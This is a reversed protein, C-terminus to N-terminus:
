VSDWVHQFVSAAIGDDGSESSHISSGRRGFGSPGVTGVAHSIGNVHPRMGLVEGRLYVLLHRQWPPFLPRRSTWGVVADVVTGM